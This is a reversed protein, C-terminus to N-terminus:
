RPAAAAFPDAAPRGREILQLIKDLDVRTKGGVMVNHVRGSRDIVVATPTARVRGLLVEWAPTRLAVPFPLKRNHAYNAVKEADQEISLAVIEFGRERYLRYFDALDPMEQRCYGCWTAWFNVLVVKGKLEAASLTRGDVLVTNPLALPTDPFNQAAQAGVSALGVALAFVGACCRWMGRLRYSIQHV